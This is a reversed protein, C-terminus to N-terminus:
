YPANERSGAYYVEIVISEEFWKWCAVWRRSLHCHFSNDELKSYNPWDPQIVGKEKLDNVLEVFKFQEMKPLKAIQKDVKRKWVVRYGM